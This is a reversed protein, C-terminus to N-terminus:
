GIEHTLNVETLRLRGLNSELNKVGYIAKISSVIGTAKNYLFFLLSSGCRCDAYGVYLGSGMQLKM